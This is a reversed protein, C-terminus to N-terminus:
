ANMLPCMPICSPRARAPTPPVVCSATALTCGPRTPPPPPPRPRTPPHMTTATTSPSLCRSASPPLPWNQARTLLSSSPRAPPTFPAGNLGAQGRVMPQLIAMVSELRQKIDANEAVAADKDRLVLQLDLYPQQNELERIRQNLRDIHTKNRERIARQAERDNARKRALQETTLNAVGRASQTRRKKGHDNAAPSHSETTGSAM